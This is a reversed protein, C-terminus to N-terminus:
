LHHLWVPVRTQRIGTVIDKTAVHYWLLGGQAAMVQADRKEQLSHEKKIRIM